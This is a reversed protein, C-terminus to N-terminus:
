GVASAASLPHASDASNVQKRGHPITLGIVILLAALTAVIAFRALPAHVAKRM